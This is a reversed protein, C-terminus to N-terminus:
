VDFFNIDPICKIQSTLKEVTGGLYGFCLCNNNISTLMIQHLVTNITIYCENEFIKQLKSSSGQITILNESTLNHWIESFLIWIITTNSVVFLVSTIKFFNDQFNMESSIWFWFNNSGIVVNMFLEWFDL